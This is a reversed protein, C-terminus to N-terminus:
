VTRKRTKKNLQKKIKKRTSKKDSRTIMFLMESRFKDKGFRNWSGMSMHNKKFIIKIRLGKKKVTRESNSVIVINNKSPELWQYVKNWFKEEDKKNWKTKARWATKIYPPDCYILTNKFDLDLASKNKISFIVPDSM